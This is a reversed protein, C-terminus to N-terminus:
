IPSAEGKATPKLKTLKTSYKLIALHYKARGKYALDYFQMLSIMWTM